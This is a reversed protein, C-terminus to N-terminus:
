FILMSSSKNRLSYIRFEFVFVLVFHAFIKSTHALTHKANTLHHNGVVSSSVLM